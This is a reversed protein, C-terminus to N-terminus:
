RVQNKKAGAAKVAVHSLAMATAFIKVFLAEM